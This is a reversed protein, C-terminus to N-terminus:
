KKRKLLYAVALPGAIAFVVEFGPTPAPTPSPATPTSTVTPTPTPTPTPLTIDVADVLIVTNTSKPNKTESPSITLVHQTNTLDTAITKTVLTNSPYYMDIDPYSKGDITVKMIGCHPAGVTILTIGIGTFTIDVSSLTGYAMYSTVKWTGGSAGPIEESLWTGSWVFSADTEEVRTITASVTTQMMLLMALVLIIGVQQKMSIVKKM